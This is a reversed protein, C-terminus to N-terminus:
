VDGRFPELVRGLRQWRDIECGDTLSFTADVPVQAGDAGTLLGRVAVVADGGYQQTCLADPPVPEFPQGTAVASQLDACAGTVDPHTGDGEVVGQTWSCVLTVASGGEPVVELDAGVLRPLLPPPSAPDPATAGDSPLLTVTDDDPSSQTEDPVSVEPGTPAAGTADSGSGSSGPATGGDGCAALVLLGSLLGVAAVPGSVTTVGTMVSMGM